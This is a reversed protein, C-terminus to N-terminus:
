ELGKLRSEMLRIAEELEEGELPKRHVLGDRILKLHTRCADLIWDELIQDGRAENILLRLDDPLIITIEDTM